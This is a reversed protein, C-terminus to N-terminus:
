RSTLWTDIVKQFRKFGSEFDDNLIQADFSSALEIERAANQLRLELDAPPKADRKLIRRRLEDISPPLIFVSKADPFKSKFTRVGQVDIDMIACLGQDWVSQLTIQLTGYFHSHVRAWEVFEQAQVKNQFDNESLFYYPHGQSEGARPPRTTCTVVDRLRSDTQCIRQVFSSKGGGSPAAVVILRVPATVSPM